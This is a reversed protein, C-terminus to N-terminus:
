DYSSLQIILLLQYFIVLLLVYGYIYPVIYIERNSEVMWTQLYSKM